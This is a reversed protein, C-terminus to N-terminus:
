SPRPSVRDDDLAPGLLFGFAHRASGSLPRVGENVREGVTQLMGSATSTASPLLARTASPDQDVASDLVDRGIRAAPASAELALQWTASTADALADPFSTADPVAPAVAQPPRAPGAQRLGVLVILTLCAAAALPAALRRLWVARGGSPLLAPRRLATMCDDVFAASPRVSPLNGIAHSLLLFRAGRARCEPCETAHKELAYEVDPPVADRRDLRENWLAEFDQCNM